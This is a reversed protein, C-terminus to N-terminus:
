AAAKSCTTRSVSRNASRGATSASCVVGRSSCSSERGTPADAADTSASSSASSSATSSLRHALMGSAGVGQRTIRGIAMRLAGDDDEGVRIARVAADFAGDDAQPRVAIPGVMWRRFKLSSVEVPDGEAGGRVAQGPGEIRDWRPREQLPVRDPLQGGVALLQHGLGEKPEDPATPSPDAAPHLPNAPPGGRM